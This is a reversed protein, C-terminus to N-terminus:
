SGSISAVLADLQAATLEGSLRGVVNGDAGVAVWYPFATLGYDTGIARDGDVIVPSSWRERALWADPPYNPLTPDNASRGLHPGRRRAVWRRRALEARGAGRAPLAPVLPRHVPRAEAPRRGQHQGAHRRVVCWRGAAGAPRRGRDVVGPDFAPLAKGTVATSPAVGSPSASAVAATGSQTLVIAAVAAGAIVLGALGLILTSPSAGKRPPPASRRSPKTKTM